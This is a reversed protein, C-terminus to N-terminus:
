LRNRQTLDEIIKGIVLIILVVLCLQIQGTHSAIFSFM